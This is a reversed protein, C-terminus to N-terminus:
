EGSASCAGLAHPCLSQAVDRIDCLGDDSASRASRKAADSALKLQPRTATTTTRTRTRTTLITKTKQFSWLQPVSFSEVKDELDPLAALYKQVDKDAVAGSKINRARIRQDFLWANEVKVESM